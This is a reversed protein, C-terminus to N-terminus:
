VGLYRDAIEPTLENAQGTWCTAGRELIVCRDAIASLGAIVPVTETMPAHADPLPDAGPRTGGGGTGPLRLVSLGARDAIM